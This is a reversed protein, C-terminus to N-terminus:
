TVRLQVPTYSRQDFNIVMIQICIDIFM